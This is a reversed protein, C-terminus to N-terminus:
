SHIRFFILIINTLNFSYLLYRAISSYPAPCLFSHDCNFDVYLPRNMLLIAISSTFAHIDYNGENVEQCHCGQGEQHWPAEQQPEQAGQAAQPLGEQDGHPRAITAIFTGYLTWTLLTIIIASHEFPTCVRLNSLQPDLPDCLEQTCNSRTCLSWSQPDVASKQTIYCQFHKASRSARVNAAILDTYPETTVHISFLPSCLICQCIQQQTSIFSREQCHFFFGHRATDSQRAVLRGQLM